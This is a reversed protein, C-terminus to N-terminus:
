MWAKEEARKKNDTCAASLIGEAKHFPENVVLKTLISIINGWNGAAEGWKLGPLLLPPAFNKPTEDHDGDASQSSATTVLVM